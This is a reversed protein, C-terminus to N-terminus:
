DDRSRRGSDSVDSDVFLHHVAGLDRERHISCRVLPLRDDPGSEPPNDRRHRRDRVPGNCKALIRANQSAEDIAADSGTCSIPM